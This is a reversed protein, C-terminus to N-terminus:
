CKIIQNLEYHAQCYNLTKSVIVTVISIIDSHKCHPSNSNIKRSQKNSISLRIRLDYINM